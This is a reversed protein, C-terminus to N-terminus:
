LAIIMFLTTIMSNVRISDFICKNSYIHVFNVVPYIVMGSM